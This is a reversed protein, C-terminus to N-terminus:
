VEPQGQLVLDAILRHRALYGEPVLHVVRAPGNRDTLVLVANPQDNRALIVREARYLVEPSIHRLDETGVCNIDVGKAREELDDENCVIVV